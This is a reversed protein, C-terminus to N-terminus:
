VMPVKFEMLAPLMAQTHPTGRSLFLAIARHEVILKHANEGALKPDFKDDLSVLEITKGNVGGSANIADFYLKAGATTEQVGAAVPGTFAASQGIVIQAAAPLALAVTCLGAAARRAVAYPLKLM